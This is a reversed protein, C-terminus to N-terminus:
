EEFKGFAFIFIIFVDTLNINYYRSIYVSIIGLALRFIM